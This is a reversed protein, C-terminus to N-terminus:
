GDGQIVSCGNLVKYGKKNVRSGFVRDGAALGLLIAEIPDGSDPRIVLVGGKGLKQEKVVPLLNRLAGAYDYSDMVCSVVGGGYEGITRQLAELETRFSTMVSHETAPISNGVPRGENLMYQAYYAATLTDTGTFNLLHATGGIVSQELCTCGRFGFDHLRSELLGYDEDEVSDKFGAEIITRAKRSLTAVTSPYWVM